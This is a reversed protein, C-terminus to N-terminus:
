KGAMIERYCPAGRIADLDSDSRIHDWDKYGNRIGAKLWRCAEAANNRLSYLCAMNYYATGYGPYLQIAAVFDKQAKDYQKLSGYAIGRDNYAIPVRGPEKEIVYSWFVVPNRWVGIQKVTLFSMCALVAVAAAICAVMAASKRRTLTGVWGAVWATAAGAVIFPGLGPLYTYRDAMAQSGVQVIGLVPSLTVVFYIWAALWVKQKRATGACAATVGSLLAVTLLSRLSLLSVHQPYPYFPILNLPVAMKWLYSVLSEAAVALRTSLPTYTLPVIADEARQALLTLIGALLSLAMLPLKVILAKWFTEISRINALPYWDLILLVFPLTVAMPKSLLALVLWVSLLLYQRNLFLSLSIGRDTDVHLMRAYKLYARISLLFFLACLVDKREAVWAVSEVHIPHLGFLLGTTAAGALVPLGDPWKSPADAANEKAAEMLSITLLVVLFTDASHFIVNILHHGLPNLGWVAYDVAHSLWTLPHWNAAYFDLFAWKLFGADISRIHTNYLIYQEDDWLFGNRLSVLYVAFTIFSVAGAVRYRFGGRGPPTHPTKKERYIGTM